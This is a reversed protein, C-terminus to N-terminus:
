RNRDNRRGHIPASVKISGGHAPALYPDTLDLSFVSLKIEDAREVEFRRATMALRSVIEAFDLKRSIKPLVWRRKRGSYTLLLCGARCDAHRLYQGLLQDRLAQELEAVTWSDAMKIEIVAKVNNRLASLRIDTRKKDAAEDERSVLYAGRADQQLRMALTRQMEEESTISRLTARDTFDHHSVDHALDDLRDLMTAMLSDRDHPPSEFRTEISRIASPPLPAAEADSAARQRALHRVRDPFASFGADSALQLLGLRAEPGPVALLISFLRDRVTERRERVGVARVGERTEDDEHRIVAYACRVLRTLVRAQIPADVGVPLWDHDDFLETFTNALDDTEGSGLAEEFFGIAAEPELLFLGKMWAVKLQWNGTARAKDMCLSAIIAAQEPSLVNALIRWTHGLHHSWNRAADGEVKTDVAQVAELLHPALQQRVCRDASALDQILPLHAHETGTALQATLESGLVEDVQAAHACALKPLFAALGNLKVTAYAVATRAEETSLRREWGPEKAETAIGLYGELWRYPRGSRETAPRQSWLKPPTSRWHQRFAQRALIAIEPSFAQTLAIEDWRDVEDRGERRKEFWRYLNHVTLQVHTPGFKDAPDALLDRRWRLWSQREKERKAKRAEAQQASRREWRQIEPDPKIPRTREAVVQTLEPSSGCAALIKAVDEPPRGRANWLALLGQLAVEKM